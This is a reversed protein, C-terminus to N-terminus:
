TNITVIARESANCQILFPKNFRSKISIESDKLKSKINEFGKLCAETRFFAVVKKLFEFLPIGDFAFHLFFKQFFNVGDMSM